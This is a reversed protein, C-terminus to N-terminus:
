LVQKIGWEKFILKIKASRTVFNHDTMKDSVFLSKLLYTSHFLWFTPQHHGVHSQSFLQSSRTFLIYGAGSIVIMISLHDSSLAFLFRASSQSLCGLHYWLTGWGQLHPHSSNEQHRILVVKKWSLYRCVRLLMEASCLEVMMNGIGILMKSCKM